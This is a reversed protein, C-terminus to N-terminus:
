RASAPIRRGTSHDKATGVILSRSVYYRYPTGKKVAHTPTLREGTEDFALGALLSPYKADSGTARDVRNQALITQVKDWLVEDVIAPREVEARGNWPSPSIKAVLNRNIPRDAYLCNPAKNSAWIV